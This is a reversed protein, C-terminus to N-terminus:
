RLPDTKGTRDEPADTEDGTHHATTVSTRPGYGVPADFSVHAEGHELLDRLLVVIGGVCLFLGYTLAVTQFHRLLFLGSASGEPIWLIPAMLGLLAVFSYVMFRIFDLPVKRITLGYVLTAVILVSATAQVAIMAREGIFVFRSEEYHADGMNAGLLGVMLANGILYALCLALPIWLLRTSKLLRYGDVAHWVVLWLPIALVYIAESALDIM